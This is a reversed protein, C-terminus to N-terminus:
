RQPGCLGVTMIEYTKGRFYLMGVRTPKRAVPTELMHHFNIRSTDCFVFM